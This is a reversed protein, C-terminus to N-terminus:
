DEEVTAPGDFEFIYDGIRESYAGCEDIFEGIPLEAGKDAQEKTEYLATFTTTVTREVRFM